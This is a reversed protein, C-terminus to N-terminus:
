QRVLHVFHETAEVAVLYESARVVSESALQAVGGNSFKVTLKSNPFFGLVSSNDSEQKKAVRDPYGALIGIRIQEDSVEKKNVNDSAPQRLLRLLQKYARDITKAAGFNIGREQLQQPDFKLRQAQRFLEEADCSRSPISSRTLEM